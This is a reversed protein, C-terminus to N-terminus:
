AAELERGLLALSERARDRAFADDDDAAAELQEHGTRGMGRLAAAANGRVWWDRDRLCLRLRPAVGICVIDWDPSRAARLAGLARAAQARVTASDDDLAASLVPAVVIPDAGSGLSRAANIREDENGHELLEILPKVARPDPALGLARAVAARVKSRETAALAALLEDVAWPAGLREILRERPLIGDGLAGILARASADNAINALGACAALRVDPDDDDLLSAAIGVAGALDLLSLLLVARGRAVAKRRRAQRALSATLAECGDVAALAPAADADLSEARAAALMDVQAHPSRELEALIPTLAAGDGERLADRYRGRRQRSLRERRDRSAKRQLVLTTLVLWLAFSGGCVWGVLELLSMAGDGM